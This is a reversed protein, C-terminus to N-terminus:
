GMARKGKFTVIIEKKINKNQGNKKCPWVTTAM